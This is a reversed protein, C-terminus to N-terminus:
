RKDERRISKYYADSEVAKQEPAKVVPAPLSSPIPTDLPEYSTEFHPKPQPAPKTAEPAKGDGWSSSQNFPGGKYERWKGNVLYSNGKKFEQSAQTTATQGVAAKAGAMFQGLREPKLLYERSTPDLLPRPDENKERKAAIQQDMDFKFRYWGDAAIGPQLSGEISKSFTDHVVNSANNVMRQFGTTSGDRLSDVERRVLMMENTSIRGNKYSEMTPDISYSKNPDDPSAYLQLLLRRVEQPNTKSEHDARLERQRTFMYDINHQKQAPTLIPDSLIDDNTIAGYRSPSVIRNLFEGMRAEQQKGLQLEQENRAHIAMRMQMDMLTVARNTLHQSQEWSLGDLLPSASAVPKGAEPPMTPAPTPVVPATSAVAGANNMVANVYNSAGVPLQNQWNAGNRELIANLNEAGMNYAALAKPYSGGYKDVLVAMTAAMDKPAQKADPANADNQAMLINSNLGKSAAAATFTPAQKTTEPTISVKGGPAAAADMLTKWPNFLALQEPSYASMVAKPNREVFGSAASFKVESIFKQELADRTPKPVKAFISNPDRIATVGNALAAGLQTEDKNAAAASSKTLTEFKNNADKAALGAQIEIARQGFESAMNATLSQYLRRGAPTAASDAGKTSWDGIDKMLKPAFTDDGPTAENTRDQLTQTWEERAKAMNVHVNTVDQAEAHKFVADAAGAISAGFHQMGQGVQAGFDDPNARVNLGGQAAIHEDYGQIIPM